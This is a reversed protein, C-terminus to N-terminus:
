FAKTLPKTLNYQFISQGKPLGKSLSLVMEGREDSRGFAKLEEVPESHQAQRLVLFLAYM